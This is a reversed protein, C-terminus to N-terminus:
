VSFVESVITSDKIRGSSVLKSKCNDELYCQLMSKGSKSAKVSLESAIEFNHPDKLHRGENIYRELHRDHNSDVIVNVDGGTKDILAAATELGTRLCHLGSKFIQVKDLLKAHHSVSIADFVDEFVHKKPNLRACARARAALVHQEQWESHEDGRVVGECRPAESPGDPTWYEDLLTIGKGDWILQTHL